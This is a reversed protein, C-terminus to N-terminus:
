RGATLNVSKITNGEQYFIEGTGGVKMFRNHTGNDHNITIKGSSVMEVPIEKDSAWQMLGQDSEAQKVYIDIGNMNGNSLSAVMTNLLPKCGACSVNFFVIFRGFFMKGSNFVGEVGSSFMEIETKKQTYGPLLSTDILQQGQNVKLAEDTFMRAFATERDIRNKEMKAALNAYYRMEDDSEAMQGLVIYPELHNWWIGAPGNMLSLYKESEEKNLNWNSMLENVDSEFENDIVETDISNQSFSFIPLATLIILAFRM